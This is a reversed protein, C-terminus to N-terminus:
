AAPEMSAKMSGTSGKINADPGYEQIQEVRLEALEKHVTAVIVRGSKDVTKAMSYAVEVSHSFITCLMEVVYEYTHEDDDFLVVHYPPEIEPKPEPNLAPQMPARRPRAPKKVPAAPVPSNRINASTLTVLPM